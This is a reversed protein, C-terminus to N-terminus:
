AEEACRGTPRWGRERAHSCPPTHVNSGGGWGGPSAGSWWPRQGGGRAGRRAAVQRGSRRGSSRKSKESEVAEVDARRRLRPRRVPRKGVVLDPSTSTEPGRSGVTTDSTRLGRTITVHRTPASIRRRGGRGVVAMEVARKLSTSSCPHRCMPEPRTSWRGGEEDEERLSDAANRLIGPLSPAGM